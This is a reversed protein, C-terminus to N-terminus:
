GFEVARVPGIGWAAALVSAAAHVPIRTLFQDRSALDPIHGARGRIADLAGRLAAHGGELDAAAHRAEALALLLPIEHICPRGISELVRHGEEAADLAEAARRQGVLARSLNAL